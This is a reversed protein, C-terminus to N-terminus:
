HMEKQPPAPRPHYRGGRLWIKLAQWHILPLIKLTMWPQRLLAALLSRDTFAHLRGHQTAVMLPAGERSEHVAIHLTAGEEMPAPVVTFRYRANMDIFPSVHLAKDKEQRVPVPLARGRDHLLYHHHEGFTNRVELLVGRLRGDAHYAFWVSLPNFAHGLVRPMALLHIPGGALDIGCEALRSEVWPRWPRGDRPGHDRTHLSFLNFRNLSFTRCHAATTELHDIDFLAAIVPYRFRYAPAAIRQHMVSTYALAADM